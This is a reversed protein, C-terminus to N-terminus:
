QLTTSNPNGERSLWLVVLESPHEDLWQRIQKWYVTVIQKSQLFHISYWEAATQQQQEEEEKLSKEEEEQMIRLDFFCIGQDLQQQVTLKQTQAQRRVFDELQGPVLQAHQTERHLWDLLWQFSSTDTAAQSITLSLDYTLSDHTGPLSVDMVTAQELLGLQQFHHMWHSPLFSDNDPPVYPDPGLPCDGQWIVIGSSDDSADTNDQCQQTAVNWGCRHHLLNRRSQLPHNPSHQQQQQTHM